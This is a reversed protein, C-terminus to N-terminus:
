PGQHGTIPHDKVCCPHGSPVQHLHYKHLECALGSHCTLRKRFSFLSSILSTVNKIQIFVFLLGKLININTLANTFERILLKM